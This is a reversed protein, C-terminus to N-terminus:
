DNVCFISSYRKSLYIKTIIVFLNKIKLWFLLTSKCLCNPICRSRKPISVKSASRWTEANVSFKASVLKFSMIAQRASMIKKNWSVKEVLEVFAPM